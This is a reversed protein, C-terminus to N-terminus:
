RGGGGRAGGGGPRAQQRGGGQAGSQGQGVAQGQGGQGRGDTRNNGQGQDAGQGRGRDRGDGRNNGAGPAGPGGGGGGGGGGSGFSHQLWRPAEEGTDRWRPEFHLYEYDLPTRDGRTAHLRVLYLGETLTSELDMKWSVEDGAPLAFVGGELAAQRTTAAEAVNRVLELDGADSTSDSLQALADYTPSVAMLLGAAAIGFLAIAVLVELLSFARRRNM